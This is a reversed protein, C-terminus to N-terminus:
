FATSSHPGCTRCKFNCLNTRHDFHRPTMATSGDPQTSSMIEPLLHEYAELMTERYSQGRNLKDFCRRCRDLSEGAMMKKRIAKMDESNWHDTFEPSHTFTKEDVCCLARQGEPYIFSHVWPMVCFTKPLPM